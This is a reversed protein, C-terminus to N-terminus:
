NISNTDLLINGVADQAREDTFYLNGSEAIDGTDLVVVGTQGNVSDVSGGGGGGSSNIVFPNAETGAGTITINTGATILGSIDINHESNWDSALTVNATTTGPPLFGNGILTNIDAQTMDPVTNTKIHTVSAM